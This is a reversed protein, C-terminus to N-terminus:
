SGKISLLPLGCAVHVAVRGRKCYPVLFHSFDYQAKM